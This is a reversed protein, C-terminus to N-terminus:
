LWCEMEDFKTLMQTNLHEFCDKCLFIKRYWLTQNNNIEIQWLAEDNISKNCSGCVDSSYNDTRENFKIRIM